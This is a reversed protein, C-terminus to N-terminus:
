HSFAFEKLSCLPESQPNEFQNTSQGLGNLSLRYSRLQDPAACGHRRIVASGASRTRLRFQNGLKAHDFFFRIFARKPKFQYNLRM